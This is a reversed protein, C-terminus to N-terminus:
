EVRSWEDAGKGGVWASLISIPIEESMLLQMVEGGLVGHRGMGHEGEGGAGDSGVGTHCREQKLSARQQPSLSLVSRQPCLRKQVKQRQGTVTLTHTHTHGTLQTHTHNWLDSNTHSPSTELLCLESIGM